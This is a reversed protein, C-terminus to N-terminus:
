RHRELLFLGWVAAGTLAIAALVIGTALGRLADPGARSALGGVSRERARFAVHSLWFLALVVLDVALVARLGASPLRIILYAAVVLDVLSLEILAGIAGRPLKDVLSHIRNLDDLIKMPERYEYEVRISRAQRGVLIMMLDVIIVGHIPV